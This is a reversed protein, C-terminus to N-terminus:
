QKIQNKFLTYIYARSAGLPTIYEYNFFDILKFDSGLYEQLMKEDYNFTSLSSCKKPGDPSFEALLVYAGPKIIKKLLSFYNKRQEEQTFFHLVARDYWLSINNLKNLYVPDTLDDVIYRINNSLESGLSDKLKELATNSIDAALIGTFGETALYKVITSTGAGAILISENKTIKCSNLMKVAPAPFEEYWSLKEDETESYVKDWHEKVSSL